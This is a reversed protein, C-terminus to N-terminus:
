YSGHSGGYGQDGITYELGTKIYPAPHSPTRM